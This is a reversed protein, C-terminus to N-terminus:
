IGSNGRKKNYLFIGILLVAVIVILIILSTSLNIIGASAQSEEPIVKVNIDETLEQGDFFIKIQGPYDQPTLNLNIIGKFEYAEWPNLTITPTHLHEEGMIFLKAYVDPISNGWRNELIIAFDNFGSRIEKTYNKLVISKNGITFTTSVNETLTDYFVQALLTYSAPTFEKAPIEMEFLHSQLAPLTIKPTKISFISKNEQNLVLLQASLSDIKELGKSTVELKVPLPDGINVNPASLALAIKKGHPPVEIVFNLNVSLATATGAANPEAVEKVQLSLDRYTGPEPLNQPVRITLTFQNNVIPSIQAYKKFEGGISAEVPHNAGSITYVNEIVKGPEFIIPSLHQVHLDLALLTPLTFILSFFSLLFFRTNM